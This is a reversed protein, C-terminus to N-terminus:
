LDRSAGRWQAFARHRGRRCARWRCTGRRFQGAAGCVGFFAAFFFRPPQRPRGGVLLCGGGGAGSIKPSARAGKGGGGAARSAACSRRVSFFRNRLSPMAVVSNAGTEFGAPRSAATFVIPSGATRLVERM